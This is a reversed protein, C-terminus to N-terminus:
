QASFSATFSEIGNQDSKLRLEFQHGCDEGVFSEIGNQDSKLGLLVQETFQQKSVSEIGNQDSKLGSNRGRRDSGSSDKLGM